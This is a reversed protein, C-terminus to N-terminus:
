QFITKHKFSFDDKIANTYITKPTHVLRLDQDYTQKVASWITPCSHSRLRTLRGAVACCGHGPLRVPTQLGLPLADCCPLLASSVAQQRTLRLAATYSSVHLLVVLLFGLVLESILQSLDTVFLM